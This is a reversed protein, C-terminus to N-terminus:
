LSLCEELMINSSISCVPTRPSKNNDLLDPAFHVTQNLNSLPAPAFKNGSLLLVQM